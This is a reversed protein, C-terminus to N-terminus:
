FAVLFVVIKHNIETESYHLYNKLNWMNNYVQKYNQQKASLMARVVNFVSIRNNPNNRLRVFSQKGLYQRRPFKNVLGNGLLPHVHLLIILVRWNTIM